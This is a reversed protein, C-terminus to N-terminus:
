LGYTEQEREEQAEVHSPYIRRKKRTKKNIGAANRVRENGRMERPTGKNEAVARSTGRLIGAEEHEKRRKTKQRM